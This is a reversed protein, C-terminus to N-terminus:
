IWNWGMLLSKENKYFNKKCCTETTLAGRILETSKIARERVWLRLYINTCMTRSISTMVISLDGVIKRVRILKVGNWWRYYIPIQIHIKKPNKKSIRICMSVIYQRISVTKSRAWLGVAWWNNQIIDILSFPVQYFLNIEFFAQYCCSLVECVAEITCKHLNVKASLCNRTTTTTTTKRKEKSWFENQSYISERLNNFSNIRFVSM